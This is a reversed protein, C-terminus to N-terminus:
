RREIHDIGAAYTWDTGATINRRFAVNHGRAWLPVSGDYIKGVGTEWTLDADLRDSAAVQLTGANADDIPTARTIYGSAMTNISATEITAAMNEGTFTAFKLASNLGGLTPATSGGGLSDVTGTLADVTGTLTDVTVPPIALRSLAATSVPLITFDNLGPLWCWTMIQGESLRWMFTKRTPDVTGQLNVFNQRGVNDALWRNVKEAGIYVPASQGDVVVPGDESMFAVMGNYSAITRGHVCGLGDAIKPLSYQSGRWQIGRIAKEQMMLGFGNNQDAGGTLAGGGDDLTNGNAVGGAWKTHDRFDSNGFRRTSSATRLAFVVNGCSFIYAGAPAGSVANNGAPTVINYAKFGDSTDSNLLFEGFLCFSVDFGTPVTRGTEVNSWTFDSGMKAIISATAAFQYYNGDSALVAIVGRPAAALATAGSPVSLQPFPGYGTAIRTVGECTNLGSGPTALDPTWAGYALQM